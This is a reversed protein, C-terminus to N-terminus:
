DLTRRHTGSKPAPKPTSSAPPPPPPAASAVATPEPKPRPRPSSTRSPPPEPDTAKAPAAEATTDGSVGDHRTPSEVANSSSQGDPSGSTSPTEAVPADSSAAPAANNALSRRAVVVGVAAASAILLAAVGLMIGTRAGSAAPLPASTFASPTSAGLLPPYGPNPAAPATAPAATYGAHPAPAYGGYAPAAPAHADVSPYGHSTGLQPSTGLQSADAHAVHGHSPYGEAAYAPAHHGHAAHAQAAHALSAGEPLAVTAAAHAAIPASQWSNSSPQSSEPDLGMTAGGPIPMAGPVYPQPYSGTMITEAAGIAAMFAKAMERASGFRTAPERSLARAIWGDVPPPLTGPPSVQSPVPIPGELIAAFLPGLAPAEFPRRGTLCEFAVVGLSWLDSWPGVTKLGQAQEPSVYFPTGILAGTRTPLVGGAAIEDSVKAVGFDLVKIVEEGDDEAPTIFINEPKIDRHVLGLDHAAGLARAVHRVVLATEALSLRQRERLRARLTEGDLYEMVIFPLDDHHGHDMVQVVHASRISAALRAEREFRAVAEANRAAEAHILKVAVASGLTLHRALWVAGMAGDGLPRDLQYRGGVIVGREAV